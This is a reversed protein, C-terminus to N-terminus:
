GAAPVTTATSMSVAAEWRAMVSRLLRGIARSVASTRISAPGRATSSM